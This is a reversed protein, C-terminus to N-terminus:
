QQLLHICQQLSNKWDKLKIDFVSKIKEKSMASYAPRKAPTPYGSTDIPQVNCRLGALEKIAIAFDFWSIIGENSFHYIGGKNETQEAIQMIVEALDAAYTPSGFQDNIVNINEREKMLRLMTKVFNNGFYSYVWSTRIIVTSPLKELAIEEGKLKSEGYFNVPSVPHDETYPSTATGDFVYDTSVHIFRTNRKRCNEALNGVAYANIKLALEKDTEAKDVATYAAANICIAPKYTIFFEEVKEADTIDLEDVDTFVYDYQPYSKSLVKLESGLQGKEGTVLIIPKSM